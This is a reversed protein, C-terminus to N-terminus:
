LWLGPNDRQARGELISQRETPGDRPRKAPPRGSVGPPKQASGQTASSESASGTPGQPDDGFPKASGQPKHARTTTPSRPTPSEIKNTQTQPRVPTPSTSQSTAWIIAGGAAGLAVVKLATAVTNGALNEVGGLGEPGGDTGPGEPGGDGGGDDPGGPDLGLAAITREAVGSHLPDEVSAQLLSREFDNASSALLRPLVEDSM